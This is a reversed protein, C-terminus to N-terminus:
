KWPARPECNDFICVKLEVVYLERKASLGGQIITKMSDNLARLARTANSVVTRTNDYVLNKGFEKREVAQPFLYHM